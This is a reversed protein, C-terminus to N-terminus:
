PACSPLELAPKGELGLPEEVGVKMSGIEPLYKAVPDSIQLRGEEVLMMAAVSVIPKTMSYIRFIADAPMADKAASDRHGLRAQWAIKGKRVVLMHAGALVGSEVHAQSVAELRKLQASSMGVEEPTKAQPLPAEAHAATVALIVSAALFIAVPRSPFM